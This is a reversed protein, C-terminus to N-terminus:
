LLFSLAWHTEDGRGIAAAETLEWFPLTKGAHMCHFDEKMQSLSRVTCGGTSSGQEQEPGATSRMQATRKRCLACTNNCLKLADKIRLAACAPWCHLDASVPQADPLLFM